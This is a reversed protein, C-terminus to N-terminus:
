SIIHQLKYAKMPSMAANYALGLDLIGAFFDASSTSVSAVGVPCQARDAVKSIESLLRPLDGAYRGVVGDSLLLLLFSDVLRIQSDPFLCNGGSLHGLLKDFWWAAASYYERKETIFAAIFLAVGVYPVDRLAVAHNDAFYSAVLSKVKRRIEAVEGSSRVVYLDRQLADTPRPVCGYVNENMSLHNEKMYKDMFEWYVPSNSRIPRAHVASVEDIVAMDKHNTSILLPWHFEIGQWRVKEKFTPLVKLLADRSFCPMMMEVFDTYRLICTPDHMTIDYTGYSFTLAPQAIKLNYDKMVDFLKNVSSATMRIDDDVLFVYEYEDLFWSHSEIYNYAMDMKYGQQCVVYDTDNRFKDFSDDYVMLHLDFDAMGDLYQRHLSDRGAPMLIANRKRHQSKRM